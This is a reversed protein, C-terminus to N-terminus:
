RASFVFSCDAFIGTFPERRSRRNKLTNASSLGGNDSRWGINNTCCLPMKSLVVDGYGSDFPFLALMAQM